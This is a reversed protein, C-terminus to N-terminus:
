LDAGGSSLNAPQFDDEEDSDDISRSSRQRHARVSAASLSQFLAQSQVLARSQWEKFTNWTSQISGVIGLEFAASNQQMMVLLNQLLNEELVQRQM